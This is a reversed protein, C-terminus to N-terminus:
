RLIEGQRTTGPGDLVQIRNIAPFREHDAFQWV